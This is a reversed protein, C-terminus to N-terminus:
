KATNYVEKECDPLISVSWAPVTLQRGGQTTVVADNTSNANSFFCSTGNFTYNTVSVLNGLDTTSINGYTLIKEISKLS